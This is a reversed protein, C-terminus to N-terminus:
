HPPSKSRISSAVPARAAAPLPAKGTMAQYHARVTENSLRVDYIAVKAISGQFWADKAMTGINLASDNAEPKVEYQSM